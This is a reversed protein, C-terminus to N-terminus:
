TALSFNMIACCLNFVVWFDKLELIAEIKEDVVLNGAEILLWFDWGLTFIM